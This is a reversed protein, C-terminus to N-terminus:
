MPACPREPITIMPEFAAKLADAIRENESTTASDYAERLPNYTSVASNFQNNSNNTIAYMGM